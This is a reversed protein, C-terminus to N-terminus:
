PWVQSLAAPVPLARRCSLGPWALGSSLLPSSPVVEKAFGVALTRAVCGWLGPRDSASLGRVHCRCEPSEPSWNPAQHRAARPGPSAPTAPGPGPLRLDTCPRTNLPPHHPAPLGTDRAWPPNLIWCPAARAM